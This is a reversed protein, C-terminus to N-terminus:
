FPPDADGSRELEHFAIGPLFSDVLLQYHSFCAAGRELIPGDKSRTELHTKCAGNRNRPATPPDGSLRRRYSLRYMGVGVSSAEALAAPKYCEPVARDRRMAGAILPIEQQLLRRGNQVFTM